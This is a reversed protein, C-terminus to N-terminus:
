RKPPTKVCRFGVHSMGTDPSCGHRASPRYRSCYSDNCLFSGGRQVRQPTFPRAPDVSRPPGTPNVIRGQDARRRYLDRQYWDACWEWVNGAMDHLGYGNAAYSAVEATTGYGADPRWPFDGHWYHARREGPREPEDGWTYTAGDLGGRAAVEWQAETPLARGAWGAYAEADEHAVQVVPHRERGSVSSGPGEPHRWSAGPTWTWWLSLHRLDVPGATRTFVMSGPQLNEVPAGPFDAPDLPREAVTVYGTADVFAAYQENTVPHTEIAFADVGVRHAPAEEPYHRDSGLTATQEPVEVLRGRGDVARDATV